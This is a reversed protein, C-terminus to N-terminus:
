MLQLHTFCASNCWVHRASCPALGGGCCGMLGSDPETSGGICCPILNCKYITSNDLNSIHHQQALKATIDIKTHV